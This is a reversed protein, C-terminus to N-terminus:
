PVTAAIIASAAFNLAFKDYHTAVRRFDKMCAFIRKTLDRQRRLPKIYPIPSRRGTTSSIM